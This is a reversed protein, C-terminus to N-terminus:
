RYHNMILEIPTKSIESSYDIKLNDCLSEAASEDVAKFSFSQTIIGSLLWDRKICYSIAYDLM